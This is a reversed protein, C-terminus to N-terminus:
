ELNAGKYAQLADFSIKMPANPGSGDQHSQNIEKGKEKLNPFDRIKRGRKSCKFFGDIVAHFRGM